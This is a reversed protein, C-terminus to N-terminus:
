VGGRVGDLFLRVAAARRREQMEPDVPLGYLQTQASRGIILSIFLDAAIEPEPVAIQGRKEFADLIQAVARVGRMWGEEHALRALDPFQLAQAVLARKLMAAGSSQGYALMTRSLDNLATEVDEPGARAAQAEAAAALPAIWLAIRQRLVAEFLERKDKYRAYVTPKSMGAAEAIADISTADFGREMFLRTAVEILYEQRRAAEARTPRGGGRKPEAEPAPHPATTM